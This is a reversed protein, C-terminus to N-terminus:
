LASWECEDQEYMFFSVFEISPKLLDRLHNGFSEPISSFTHIDYITEAIHLQLNEDHVSHENISVYQFDFGNEEMIHKIASVLEVDTKCEWHTFRLINLEEDKLVLNEMKLRIENVLRENEKNM